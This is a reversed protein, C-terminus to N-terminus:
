LDRQTRFNPRRPKGGRNQQCLAFRTHSVASVLTPTPKSAPPPGHDTLPSYMDRVRGSRGRRPRATSAEM